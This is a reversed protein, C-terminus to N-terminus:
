EPIRHPAEAGVAGDASGVCAPKAAYGIPAAEAALRGHKRM